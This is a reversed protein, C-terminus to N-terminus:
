EAELYLRRTIGIVLLPCGGGGGGQIRPILKSIHTTSAGYSHGKGLEGFIGQLEDSRTIIVGVSIVRLDFLLRFNNLDRDYFPDKNNWEVEIAVRNKFCDVKHTPSERESEDVNIKIDFGKEVWGRDLLKSDISTAIKSKRGGPTLIESKKLRFESLAAILDGWEEPFDNRLVAIAHNWEHIEYKNRINRPFLEIGM